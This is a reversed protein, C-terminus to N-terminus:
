DYLLFNIFQWEEFNNPITITKEENLSLDIDNNHIDRIFDNIQNLQITQNKDIEMKEQGRSEGFRVIM